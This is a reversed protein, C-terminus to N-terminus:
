RFEGRAFYGKYMKADSSYLEGGLRAKFIYLQSTKFELLLVSSYRRMFLASIRLIKSVFSAHKTTFNARAVYDFMLAIIYKKWNSLRVALSRLRKYQTVCHIPLVIDAYFTYNLLGVSIKSATWFVWLMIKASRMQAPMFLAVLINATYTHAM